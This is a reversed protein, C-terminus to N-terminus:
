SWVVQSVAATIFVSLLFVAIVATAVWYDVVIPEHHPRAARRKM